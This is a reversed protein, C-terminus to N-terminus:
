RKCSKLLLQAQREIRSGARRNTLTRALACAKDPDGHAMFLQARGLDAKDRTRQDDSESLERLASLAATEDGRALAQGVRGWDTVSTAAGEAGAKARAAAGAPSTTVASSVAPGAPRSTGNAGTSGNAGDNPTSTLARASTVKNPAVLQGNLPTSPATLETPQEFTPSASVVDTNNRAVGNGLKSAAELPASLASSGAPGKGNTGTDRPLLKEVMEGIAHPKAYALSGIALVIFVLGKSFWARRPKPRTLSLRARRVGTQIEADSPQAAGYARKALELRALDAANM